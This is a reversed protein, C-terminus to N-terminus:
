GKTVPHIAGSEVAAAFELCEGTQERSALSEFANMSKRAIVDWDYLKVAFERANETLRKRLKSETLLRVVHDAFLKRDDAVLLHEEDIASLGECGISTSVVPRGLAMAELIKLRTGSGARLPVVCVRAQEYYPVVDPVAGTVIVGNGELRKVSDPPNIGVIWVKANALVRRILPLVEGCFYIAADANPQYGMNGIFLIGSDAAEDPLPRYYSTDVGNPAVEVRLDSKVSLLLQKDAESMAVCLGFRAAFDPQWRRMMTAHIWARIKTFVRREIRAIRKFKDFDIDHLLWVTRKRLEEPLVQLYLGMSGHEIQVVDFDVRDTLKEIERAMEQSFAMSLEPPQGKLLAAVAKGFPMGEKLSKQKISVVERCFVRLHAVDDHDNDTASFAVLYVDHDRAFRRLVSYTRLPAGSILPYPIYNTIILIKM